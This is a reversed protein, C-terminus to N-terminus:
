WRGASTSSGSTQPSAQHSVNREDVAHARRLETQGNPNTLNGLGSELSPEGAVDFPGGKTDGMFAM